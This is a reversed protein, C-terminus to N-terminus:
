HLLGLSRFLWDMQTGGGSVTLGNDQPPVCVSASVVTPLGSLLGIGSLDLSVPLLLLRCDYVVAGQVDSPDQLTPVPLDGVSTEVVRVPRMRRKARAHRTTRPSKEVLETVSRPRDFSAVIGWGYASGGACAVVCAAAVYLEEPLRCASGM